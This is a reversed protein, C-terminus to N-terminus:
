EKKRYGKPESINYLAKDADSLAGLESRSRYPLYKFDKGDAPFFEEYYSFSNFCEFIDGDYTYTTEKYNKEGNKLYQDYEAWNSFERCHWISKILRGNDDTVNDLQQVEIFRRCLERINLDILGPRQIDLYIDLDYHRHMEFFRSIFDPLGKKRSDFYRQVESLFIKSGPPVYIMEKLQENPLGLYFGNIFYPEYYEEYGTLFKIAFDAYIPPKEPLTLPAERKENAATVRERAVTLLEEGVDFYATVLFCAELSSKGAGPAGGIITLM